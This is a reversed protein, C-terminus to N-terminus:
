EHQRVGKVASRITYACALALNICISKGGGSQNKFVINMDGRRERKCGGGLM